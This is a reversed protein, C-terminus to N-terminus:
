SDLYVPKLKLTNEKHKCLFLLDPLDNPAKTNRGLFTEFILVLGCSGRYDSSILFLLGVTHGSSLSSRDNTRIKLKIHQLIRVQLNQKNQTHEGVLNDVHM